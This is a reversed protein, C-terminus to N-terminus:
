IHQGGGRHPPGTRPPQGRIHGSWPSGYHERYAKLPEPFSPVNNAGYIDITKRAQNELRYTAPDQKQWTVYLGEGGWHSGAYAKVSQLDGTDLGENVRVAFGNPYGAEAFLRKAAVPDYDMEGPGLTDLGLQQMRGRHAWIGIYWPEGEGFAIDNILYQRDISRLMAERVKRAREWEASDPDANCSIWPRRNDSSMDTAVGNVIESDDCIETYEFEPDSEAPSGPTYHLGEHWLMKINAAPFIMYKLNAAEGSNRANAQIDRIGDLTFVGTDLVGTLFGAERTTEDPIDWWVMEDFEPPERWHNEVARMRRFEDTRYEIQEWPGTGVDQDVATKRWVDAFHEKSHISFSPVPTQSYWTIEFTPTPRTLKVTYDDVKELTCEGCWFVKRANTAQGHFSGWGATEEISWILDDANFEGWEGHVTHWRVGEQLYFTYTLGDPSVDFSQVLRPEWEGDYGMAFMTEHTTLAAFKNQLLDADALTGVYRGLNAMGVDLIAVSTSPRPTPWPTQGTVSPPLTVVAATPTPEPAELSVDMLAAFVLNLDAEFTTGNSLHLTLTESPPDFSAELITVPEQEGPTQTKALEELSDILEVDTALLRLDAEVTSGDSRTLTLTETAPDVTAEEITAADPELSTQAAALAALSATLEIDTALATLDAVVATGDSLTLTLAQTTASYSAEEVLRVGVTTPTPDESGDCAVVVGLLLCFVGLAWTRM